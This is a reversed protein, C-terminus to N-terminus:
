AATQRVPRGWLKRSAIDAGEVLAALKAWQITPHVRRAFPGQAFGCDTSAIVNERGVLEALRVIREAVLEPHEVINTSHSIVGPLLIKGAPLKIDKWIKWEHEHRPNAMELSIQGVNLQLVLDMIDKAAVDNTHPGNWSGWCVHYRLRDAPLGKIAENTADIRVQAWKRFDAMSQPPVMIDYYTALYADDIQVTLGADIIAKYEDRLARAIAFLSEDSSKYFEEGREPAVSAPAVVPLFAGETKVGELAAKFGDIDRQIIKQGTYSIPGTVYWLGLKAFSRGMGVFGNAAEYEAYFEAFDRRDKGATARISGVGGGHREEFGSMRELVYRSWSLNKGFEGDSVIDIGTEAQKRVVDAVSRALCTEYAAPDIKEGDQQKRLFDTLETPRILSGVHTTLIRDQAM